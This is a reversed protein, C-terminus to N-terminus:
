DRREHPPRAPQKLRPGQILGPLTHDPQTRCILLNMDGYTIYGAPPPTAVCPPSCAAPPRRWFYPWLWPTGCPLPSPHPPPEGWTQMRRAKGSDASCAARVPTLSHGYGAESASAATGWAHQINRPENFPRPDTHPAACFKPHNTSTILHKPPPPHKARM